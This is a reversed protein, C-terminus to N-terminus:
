LEGRLFRAITDATRLSSERAIAERECDDLDDEDDQDSGYPPRAPAHPVAQRDADEALRLDLAAMALRIEAVREADTMEEDDLVGETLGAFTIYAVHDPRFYRDAYDQVALRDPQDAPM